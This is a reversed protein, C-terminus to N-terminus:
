PARYERKPYTRRLSKSVLMAIWGLALYIAAYIIFWVEKIDFFLWTGCLFMVASILPLNWRQKINKGCFTGLIISYVPNLVLFLMMCLAMGSCASALHAVAFPLVFMVIMTICLWYTWSTKLRTITMSSELEITANLNTM